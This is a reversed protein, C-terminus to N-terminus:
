VTETVNFARSFVKFYVIAMSYWVSPVHVSFSLNVMDKPSLWYLHTHVWPKMCWAWNTCPHISITGFLRLSASSVKLTDEALVFIPMGYRFVLLFVISGLMSSTEVLSACDLSASANSLNAPCSGLSVVDPYRGQREIAEKFQFGWFVFNKNRLVWGGTFQRRYAPPLCQFISIWADWRPRKKAM